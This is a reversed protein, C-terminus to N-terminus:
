ILFQTVIPIFKKRRKAFKYDGEYFHQGRMILGSFKVRWFFRGGPLSGIEAATGIPFLGGRHDYEYTFRWGAGARNETGGQDLHFSTSGLLVDFRYGIRNYSEKVGYDEVDAKINTVSHKSIGVFGGASTSADEITPMNYYFGGGRIGREIMRNTPVSIYTRVDYNGKREGKLTIQTPIAVTDGKEKVLIKGKRNWVYTGGAELFLGGSSKIGTLGDPTLIPAIGVSTEVAVREIPRLVVSVDPGGMINDGMFRFDIPTIDIELKHTFPRDEILKYKVQAFSNFSIGGFLVAILIFKTFHKPKM